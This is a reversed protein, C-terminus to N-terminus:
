KKDAHIALLSVTSRPDRILRSAERDIAEQLETATLGAAKIPGLLPVSIMGDPRILYTGDFEPERWMSVSIQDLPALLYPQGVFLTGLGSVDVPFVAVNSGALADVVRRWDSGATFDGALPPGFYILAKKESLRGIKQVASLLGDWRRHADPASNLDLAMRQIAATLKERDDTFDQLVRVDGEAATLVAVRDSGMQQQVFQLAAARPRAQAETSTGRLDFYLIVLRRENNLLPRAPPAPQQPPLPAQPAPPVAAVVAAPPVPPPPPDPVFQRRDVTAAAFVASITLCAAALCLARARTIRPAPSQGVIQRIRRPLSSGPMAMGVVDVRHGSRSM